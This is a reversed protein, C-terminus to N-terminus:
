AGITLKFFDAAVIPKGAVYVSADYTHALSGVTSKPTIELQNAVGIGYNGLDGGVITGEPVFASLVIPVGEINRGEIIQKILVEDKKTSADVISAYDSPNMCITARDTKSSMTLAFKQLATCNLATAKVETADETIATFRDKVGEFIGKLITRRVSGSLIKTLAAEFDVASLKLTEDSVKISKAFARPQVDISALGDGESSFTGDEAVAAFEGVSTNWVPIVNSASAGTHISFKNLLDDKDELAFVLESAVNVTGTSNLSVTRKEKMSKQIDAYFKAKEASRNEKMPVSALAKQDDLEKKAARIAKLKEDALKIQEDLTKKQTQEAM